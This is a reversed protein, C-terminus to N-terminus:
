KSGQKNDLQGKLVYGRMFSSKESNQQKIGPGLLAASVNYASLSKKFLLLFSAISRSDPMKQIGKRCGPSGEQWTIRTEKLPCTVDKIQRAQLQSM